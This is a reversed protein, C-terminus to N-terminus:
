CDKAIHGTKGCKHCTVVTKQIGCENAYHGKPNCRFCAISAKNCIGIHKKGCIKYEPMHLRSFKQQSINQPQGGPRFSRAEPRKFGGKKRQFGPRKGYQNRSSRQGQNGERVEVNM